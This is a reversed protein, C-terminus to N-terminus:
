EVSVNVTYGNAKLLAHQKAQALDHVVMEKM